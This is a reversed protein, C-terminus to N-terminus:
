FVVQLKFELRHAWQQLLLHVQYLEMHQVFIQDVIILETQIQKHKLVVVVLVLLNVYVELRAIIDGPKSSQCAAFLEEHAQGAPADNNGGGNNIVNNNNNSDNGLKSNELALRAVIEIPHSGKIVTSKAHLHNNSNKSKQHRDPRSQKQEALIVVMNIIILM